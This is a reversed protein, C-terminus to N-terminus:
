QCGIVVAYIFPEYVTKEPSIGTLKVLLMNISNESKGFSADLTLLRRARKFEEGLPQLIIHKM